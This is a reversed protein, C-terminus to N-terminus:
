ASAGGTLVSEVQAAVARALRRGSQADRFRCVRDALARRCAADASRDTVYRHLSELLSDPSYAVRAAGTELVPQYHEFQFYRRISLPMPLDAARDFGINVVPTDMACAEVTTTSAFNVLVDSWALTAALHLQDERSASYQDAVPTGDTGHLRAFPKEIRVHRREGFRDYASLDDRPHVRVLLQCPRGLTDHEVASALFDIIWPTSPYMSKPATALTIVARGQQLGTRALFAAASPVQSRDFYHDFQAAGVVHIRQPTFGHYRIAQQRMDDNWVALYDVPMVTHYKSVLNDWGIDVGMQPIGARMASYILPVEATHFGASSTVVMAPRRATLCADLGPAKNVRSALRYLASRSVPLLATLRQAATAVSRGVSPKLLRARDRQLRVARLNSEVLFRECLASEIVRNVGHPLWNPLLTVEVHQRSFERQFGADNAFPTAVLVRLGLDVLGDLVDTRLLNAVHHGSPVSLVILPRGSADPRGARFVSPRITPGRAQQASLTGAM